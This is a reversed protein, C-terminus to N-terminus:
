RGHEAADIGKPLEFRPRKREPKKADIKKIQDDLRREFSPLFREDERYWKPREQKIYDLKAGIRPFDEGHSM